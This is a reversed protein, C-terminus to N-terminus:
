VRGTAHLLEATLIAVGAAGRVLNNSLSVFRLTRERTGRRLRGVFVPMGKVDGAEADLRPQPRDPENMVIVPQRPATPLELRQPLGRFSELADRVEELDFEKALEVTVSALHGVLTPVRTCTADVKFPAPEVRGNVLKGMIKRPEASVKEEEGRIYPIVNGLIAMSPVGGYGAGSVSQMTVVDLHRVGQTDLLPKLPPVFTMTTCNPTTVIFGDWGRKSRQLEILELHEPNVEPVLLPVDDHYRHASADSVVPFGARAFEPEVTKAAETPLCSFILDADFKKPDSPLVELDRLKPPVEGKGGYAEILRKGVTTNGSVAAVRFWPHEALMNLYIQGVMGTAGLVGVKLRSM